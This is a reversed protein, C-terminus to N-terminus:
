FGLVSARKSEVDVERKKKELDRDTATKALRKKTAKPRDVSETKKKELKKGRSGTARVTRKRIV